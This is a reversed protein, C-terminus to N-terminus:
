AALRDAISKKVSAFHNKLRDKLADNKVTEKVSYYISTALDRAVEHVIYTGVLILFSGTFNKQVKM